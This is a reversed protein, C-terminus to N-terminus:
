FYICVYLKDGYLYANIILEGVVFFYKDVKRAYCWVMQFERWFFFVKVMMGCFLLVIGIAFM